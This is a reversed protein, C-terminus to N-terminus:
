KTCHYIYLDEQTIEEGGIKIKLPNEQHKLNIFVLATKKPNAVLVLKTNYLMLDNLMNMQFICAM